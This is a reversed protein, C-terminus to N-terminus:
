IDKCSLSTSVSLIFTELVPSADLFSVLSLYDYTGFVNEDDAAALEINLYKLHLFENTVMPTNVRESGSYITLTELHPMVSPLKTIACSVSNLESSFALNFNKVPSSEGLLHQVQDGSLEFTTLNPATNEIVQLNHCSSVILWSLRDLWLPIKLCILEICSRLELKELCFSKFILHELEDGTIHVGDLYLETLSRLCDFGVLSCPFNYEARWGIPLLLTVEEIGPTIAKQLWRNVDCPDVENYGIVIKLSRVGVGSHTKLINNVRWTFGETRSSKGDANQKLGLTEDTFTLKPHCKWSCLFTRSVCASCASDCLSM